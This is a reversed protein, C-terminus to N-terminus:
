MTLSRKAWRRLQNPSRLQCVTAWLESTRRSSTKSARQCRSKMTTKLCAWTNRCIKLRISQIPSSSDASKSRRSFLLASWSSNPLRKCLWWKSTELVQPRLSLRLHKSIRQKLAKWKAQNNKLWNLKASSLFKRLISHNILRFKPTRESGATLRLPKKSTNRERVRLTRFKTSIRDKNQFLQLKLRKKLKQNKRWQFDLLM